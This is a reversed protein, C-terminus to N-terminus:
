RTLTVKNLHRPVEPDRGSAIALHYAFLQCPVIAVIPALWEPVGVPLPISAAALDRVEALDSMVLLDAGHEGLRGLLSAMGAVAPGSTVVALVPFGPEIMSIPGHEFDAASYPDAAM